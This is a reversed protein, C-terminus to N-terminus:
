EEETADEEQMMEKNERILAQAERFTLPADNIPEGTAENIVNWENAEDSAKEKKLGVVPVSEPPDPDLQEFKDMFFKLRDPECKITQGALLVVANGDPDQYSYKGRKLRFRMKM